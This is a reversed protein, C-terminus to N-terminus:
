GREERAWALENVVTGGSPNPMPPTKLVLQKGDYDFARKQEAGTWNPFLSEEVHHVVADDTVEYTGYYALATSYADARAQADGGLPPDDSEIQPRNAGALMVSMRGDPTYVLLGKADEGLPHTESGDEFVRRWAVLTWTGALDPAM